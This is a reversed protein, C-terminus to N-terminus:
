FYDLFILRPCRTKLPMCLTSNSLVVNAVKYQYINVLSGNLQNLNRM